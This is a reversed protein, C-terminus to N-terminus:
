WVYGAETPPLDALYFASSLRAANPWCGDARRQGSILYQRQWSSTMRGERQNLRKYHNYDAVSAGEKV